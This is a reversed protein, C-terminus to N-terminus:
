EVTRKGEISIAHDGFPNPIVSDPDIEESLLFKNLRAVAVGGQVIFGVLIPFMVLPMIM